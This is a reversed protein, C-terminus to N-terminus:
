AEGEKSRSPTATGGFPAAREVAAAAIKPGLVGTVEFEWFERAQQEAKEDGNLPLPRHCSECVGSM